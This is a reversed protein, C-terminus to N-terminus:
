AAQKALVAASAALRDAAFLVEEETTARGLSLRLSENVASDSLGLAKLVPSPKRAASACAAGTSMCLEDTLDLMVDQAAAGPLHINVLGPLRPTGGNVRAPPFREQLRRVFLDVLRELRPAQEQMVQEAIRCAEGFGVALALPVTGPRLAQQMGGSFVRRIAVPPKQRVYLAGVGGPGYLKHASYSLLDVGLATVDLPIKGAAQTADTHMLAGVAHALDAIEKLPQVTGIEHSATIVSVLLTKPGIHKKLEAPEVFGDSTVPVTKIVFGRAALYQATGSVCNHEIASIVIERRDTAAEAVGLLALNNSETAGSTLTITEPGAGIIHGIKEKADELVLAAARGHKHAQAGPNGFREAGLYPLMAEIVEPACPTTSHYDLYVPKKM